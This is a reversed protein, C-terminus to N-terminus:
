WWYKSLITVLYWIVMTRFTNDRTWRCRCAGYYWCRLEGGAKLPTRTVRDKTRHKINQLNNNTRKYKKSQGNHQRDKKSKKRIRTIDNKSFNSSVLHNILIRLEFFSLCCLSWFLFSLLVFLLRCVEVCLVLSLTVRVGNFVPSCMCPKITQRKLGSMTKRSPVRNMKLLCQCQKWYLGNYM